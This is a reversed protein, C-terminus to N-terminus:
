AHTFTMENDEVGQVYPDFGEPIYELYVQYTGADGGGDSTIVIEQGPDVEVLGGPDTSYTASGDSGTTATTKPKGFDAYLVKDLASGSFPVTITGITTSNGNDRDRVVVTLTANAVTQAVTTVLILRKAKIRQGPEYQVANSGSADLTSLNAFESKTWFLSSSM